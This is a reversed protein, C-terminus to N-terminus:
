LMQKSDRWVTKRTAKQFSETPLFTAIEWYEAPIEMINSRIHSLLYRKFTPKFAAHKSSNKLLEYSLQLKTYKDYAKNNKFELLKSFFQARHLIPLYHLNLGYVSKNDVPELFLMLPFKDYYPLTEKHKPDYIYHYLRGPRFTERKELVSDKILKTRTPAMLDKMESRYWDIAKKSFKKRLSANSYKIQQKQFFSVKKAM